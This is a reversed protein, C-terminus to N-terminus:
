VEGPFLPAQEVDKVLSSEGSRLNLGQRNSLDGPSGTSTVVPEVGLPVDKSGSDADCSGSQGSGNLEQSDLAELHSLDALLSCGSFECRTIPAM